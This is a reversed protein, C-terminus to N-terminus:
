ATSRSASAEVLNASLDAGDETVQHTATTAVAAASAIACRVLRLPALTGAVLVGAVASAAIPVAQGLSPQAQEASHQPQQDASQQGQEEPPQQQEEQDQEPGRFQPYAEPQLMQEQVLVTDGDGQSGTESSAAADAATASPSSPSEVQAEAAQQGEGLVASFAAKVEGRAMQFDGLVQQAFHSLEKSVAAGTGSPARPQGDSAEASSQGEAGIRRLDAADQESPLEAIMLSRQEGSMRNQLEDLPAFFVNRKTYGGFTFMSSAMLYTGNHSSKIRFGEGEVAELVVLALQEGSISHAEHHLPSFYADCGANADATSAMLYDGFPVSKIRFQQDYPNDQDEELVLLSKHPGPVMRYTHQLPAFFAQRKFGDEIVMDSAMLYDSFAQSKVRFSGLTTSPLSQIATPETESVVQEPRMVAGVGDAAFRTAHLPVLRAAVVIGTAAAAAAGIHRVVAPPQEGRNEPTLKFADRMDERGNWFDEQVQQRFRTFGAAFKPKCGALRGTATCWAGTINEFVGSTQGEPPSAPPAQNEPAPASESSSPTTDAESTLTVDSDMAQRPASTEELVSAENSAVVDAVEQLCEVDVWEDADAQEGVIQLHIVHSAAALALADSFTESTLTCLTGDDGRYQISITGSPKKGFLKCASHSLGESTAEAEDEPWGRLRRVEGSSEVKLTYKTSAQADAMAFVRVQEVSASQLAKLTLALWLYAATPSFILTRFFQSSSTV